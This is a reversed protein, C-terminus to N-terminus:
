CMYGVYQLVLVWNTKFLYPSLKELDIARSCTSNSSRVHNRINSSNPAPLESM